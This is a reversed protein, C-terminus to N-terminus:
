RALHISHKYTANGDTTWFEEHMQLMEKSGVPGSICIGSDDASAIAQASIFKGWGRISFIQEQALYYTVQQIGSWICAGVCMPCPENSAFLHSKRLIGPGYKEIVDQIALIEAHRLPNGTTRSDNAMSSIIQGDSEIVAAFPPNGADLARQQNQLLADVIKQNHM